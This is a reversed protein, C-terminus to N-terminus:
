RSSLMYRHTCGQGKVKSNLKLHAPQDSTAVHIGNRGCALESGTVDILVRLASDKVYVALDCSGPGNDPNVYHPASQTQGDPSSPVTRTGTHLCENQDTAGSWDLVIPADSLLNRPARISWSVGCYANNIGNEFTVPSSWHDFPVFEEPLGRCEPEGVTWLRHVFQIEDFSAVRAEAADFAANPVGRYGIAALGEPTVANECSGIDSPVDADLADFCAPHVVDLLLNWDDLCADRLVWLEDQMDRTLRADSALARAHEACATSGAILEALKRRARALKEPVPAAPPLGWRRWSETAYALVVPQKRLGEIARSERFYALTADVVPVLCAGVTCEELAVPLSIAASLATTIALSDGGRAFIRLGLREHEIGALLARNSASSAGVSVAAIQLFGGIQRQAFQEQSESRTEVELAVSVSGGHWTEDIVEDGCGIQFAASQPDFLFEAHEGLLRETSRVHTLELLFVASHVSAALSETLGSTRGVGFLGEVHLDARTLGSRLSLLGETRSATAAQISTEDVPTTRTCGRVCERLPTQTSSEFGRGRLADPAVCGPVGGAGSDPSPGSDADSGATGGVSGGDAPPAARTGGSGGSGDRREGSAPPSGADPGTPDSDPNAIVTCATVLAPLALVSASRRSLPGSISTSKM